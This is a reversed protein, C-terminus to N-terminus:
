PRHGQAELRLILAAAAEQEARRRSSGEGTAELSLAPVACRARFSQDHPEGWVDVVAYAPLEHGRSQLWEQLRTKPDKVPSRPLEALRAAYLRLVLARATELGSELYVAGIIAELADALISPRRFGGSRLESTGLRLHDGLGAEAALAALSGADVLTARLRTLEGEEALPLRRYLEEGIALGLVADGLFELRENDRGAHSRHTLAQALLAPDQFRHGLREELLADPPASGM